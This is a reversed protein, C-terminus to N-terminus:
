SGSVGAAKLLDDVEVHDETHQMRSAFSCVNGPGFVFEGGLQSINGQKGLLNPNKLPGNWVSSLIGSVTSKKIYSRKKEGSPTTELNEINMGLARYLNRTPDTFIDGQLNTLAAYGSGKIAQWDGCGVVVVKVNSSDLKDKPINALAAVYEGCFFHRIFVIITKNASYISSFQVENGQSDLVNCDGAKKLEEESPLHRPDSM